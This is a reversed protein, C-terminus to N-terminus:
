WESGEQEIVINTIKGTADVEYREVRPVFPKHTEYPVFDTQMETLLQKKVKKDCLFYLYRHKYSEEKRWFTRRVTKAFEEPIRSGWKAGASRSHVWEKGDISYSFSKAKKNQGRGQYLWNTARYIIGGHGAEPDAYSILIKITPALQKLWKFSQGIFYSEANKGVEDLLVLRTLELVEDNTVGGISRVALNGVPQGYTMVGVLSESDDFFNSTQSTLYLGFSFKTASSPRHSYHHKTVFFEATELGIPRVTLNWTNVYENM